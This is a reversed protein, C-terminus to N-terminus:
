TTLKHTTFSVVPRVYQISGAASLDFPLIRIDPTVPEGEDPATLHQSM